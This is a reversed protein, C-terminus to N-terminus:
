AGGIWTYLYALILLWYDRSQASQLISVASRGHSRFYTNDCKKVQLKSKMQVLDPSKLKILIKKKFKKLKLNM